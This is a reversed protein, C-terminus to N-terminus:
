GIADQVKDRRQNVAVPRPELLEPQPAISCKATWVEVLEAFRLADSVENPKGAVAVELLEDCGM